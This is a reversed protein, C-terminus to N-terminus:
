HSCASRALVTFGDVGFEQDLALGHQALWRDQAAYALRERAEPCNYPLRGIHQLHHVMEHVLISIDAPSDSRWQETLYITPGSADYLAVIAHTGVGAGSRRVSSHSAPAGRHRIEVLKGQPVFRLKPMQATAPLKFNTALWAGIRVLLERPVIKRSSGPLQQDDGHRPQAAPLVMPSSRVVADGAYCVLSDVVLGILLVAGPILKHAYM